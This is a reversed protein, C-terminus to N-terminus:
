RTRKIQMIMKVLNPFKIVLTKRIQDKLISASYKYILAENQRYGSSQDSRKAYEYAM